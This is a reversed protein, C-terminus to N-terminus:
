GTAGAGRTAARVAELVEDNSPNDSSDRNYHAMAVRGGADVVFTGPSQAVDGKPVGPVAGKAAARLFGKALQPGLYQGVGGRELGVAHYGRREPDGFCDFPVGRKRCFHRTPEARYQFVAVVDGGAERIEERARGL